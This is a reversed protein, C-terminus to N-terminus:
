VVSAATAVGPSKTRGTGRTKRDERDLFSHARGLERAVGTLVHGARLGRHHSGWEGHRPCLRSGEAADVADVKGRWPDSLNEKRVVVICIEPSLWAAQVRSGDPEPSGNGPKGESKM